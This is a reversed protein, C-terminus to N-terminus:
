QLHQWELFDLIKGRAIVVSLLVMSRYLNYGNMGETNSSIKWSSKTDYANANGGGVCYNRKKRIILEIKKSQM